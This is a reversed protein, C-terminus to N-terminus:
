LVDNQVPNCIETTGSSCDNGLDYTLIYGAAFRAAEGHIDLCNGLSRTGPMGIQPTGSRSHYNQVLQLTAM